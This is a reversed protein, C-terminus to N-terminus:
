EYRMERKNKKDMKRRRNDTRAPKGGPLKHYFKCHQCAAYFTGEKGLDCNGEAKYHLCAIERNKMVKGGVDFIIFDM